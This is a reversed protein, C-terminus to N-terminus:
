SYIPFIEGRYKRVEDDKIGQKLKHRIDEIRERNFKDNLSNYWELITENSAALVFCTASREKNIYDGAWDILDRVEGPTIDIIGPIKMLITVVYQFM